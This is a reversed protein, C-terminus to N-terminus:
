QNAYADCDSVSISGTEAMTRLGASAAAGIEFLHYDAAHASALRPSFFMGHTLNTLEITVTRAESATAALSCTLAVSLHTIIKPNFKISAEM